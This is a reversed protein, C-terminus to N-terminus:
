GVYTVSVDPLRKWESRQSPTQREFSFFQPALPLTIQRPHLVDFSIPSLPRSQRSPSKDCPKCDCTLPWKKLPHCDFVATIRLPSLPYLKTRPSSRFLFNTRIKEAMQGPRTARTAAWVLWAMQAVQGLWGKGDLCRWCCGKGDPCRWRWGKDDSGDALAWSCALDDRCRLHNLWNM